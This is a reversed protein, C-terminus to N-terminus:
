ALVIKEAMKEDILQGHTLSTTELIGKKDAYSIADAFDKWEDNKDRVKYMTSEGRWSFSISPVGLDAAEDIIKYFRGLYCEQAGVVSNQFKDTLLYCM